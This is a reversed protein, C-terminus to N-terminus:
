SSVPSEEITVQDHVFAVRQRLSDVQVSGQTHAWAIRESVVQGQQGLLDFYRQEGLHQSPSVFGSDGLRVKVDDLPLYISPEVDSEADIFWLADVTDGLVEGNRTVRIRRAVPVLRYPQFEKLTVIEPSLKIEGGVQQQLREGVEIAEVPRSFLFGQLSDCGLSALLHFQGETEVGEATVHLGLGQGLAIVAQAIACDLPADPLDKVFYRDIKLTHLPFLKLYALSSYGMGFDDLAFRAGRATLGELKQMVDRTPDLLIGETIELQLQAAPFGTEELVTLVTQVFNAEAFQRPSVNVSMVIDHSGADIWARGQHCATLMVWRGVETILGTQELIPIFEGPSVVGQVPDVWRLLAETTVITEGDAAMVPQYLLKFESHRLAERLRVHMDLQRDADVQMASDYQCIRGGGLVKASRVAAEACTILEDADESSEGFIAIGMTPSFVATRADTEFPEGFVRQINRAVVYIGRVGSDGSVVLAFKDGGIRALLDTSRVVSQIRLGVQKLLLDAADKGLSSNILRFNDLDLLVVGLAGRGTRGAHIAQNLVVMIGDRNLLGTVSDRMAMSRLKRETRRILHVPRMFVSVWILLALVGSIVAVFATSVLLSGHDSLSEALWTRMTISLVAWLIPPLTAAGFLCWAVQRFSTRNPADAGGAPRERIM